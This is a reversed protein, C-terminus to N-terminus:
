ARRLAIHTAIMAPIQREMGNAIPHDLSLKLLGSTFAWTDRAADEPTLGPRLKGLAAAERYRGEIKRLFEQAPRSVEEQVGAFEDVYECRTVMIQFVQRVVECEELVRFFEEISAAIADLPDAYAKAYLLADTREVIPTFVDERMAFFLEAKDRFHWYVAGRTVGAAKAIRELTSRSVGAEYFVSRAAAIIQKRTLEAEEKTKRAM